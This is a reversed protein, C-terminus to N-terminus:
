SSASYMFTSSFTEILDKNSDLECYKDLYEKENEKSIEIFFTTYNSKGNSDIYEPNGFSFFIGNLKKFSMFLKTLKKDKLINIPKSLKGSGKDIHYYVPFDSTDVIHFYRGKINFDPYDHLIDKDYNKINDYHKLGSLKINELLNLYSADQKLETRLDIISKEKEESEVKEKFKRNHLNTHYKQKSGIKSYSNDVEFQEIWSIEKNKIYLLDPRKNESRDVPEISLFDSMKLYLENDRVSLGRIEGHRIYDNFYKKEKCM